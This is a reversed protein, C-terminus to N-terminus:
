GFTFAFVRPGPDRFEIEFLHEGADESCRLRQHLCPSVITLV